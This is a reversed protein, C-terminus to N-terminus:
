GLLKKGVRCHYKRPNGHIHCYLTSCQVDPQYYLIPIVIEPRFSGNSAVAGWNGGLVAVWATRWGLPGVSDGNGGGVNVMCVVFYEKIGWM